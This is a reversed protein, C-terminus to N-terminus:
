FFFHYEDWDSYGLNGARERPTHTKERWRSNRSENEEVHTAKVRKAFERLDDLNTPTLIYFHVSNVIFQYTYQGEPESEDTVRKKAREKATKADCQPALATHIFFITSPGAGRLYSGMGLKKVDEPDTYLIKNFGTLATPIASTRWCFESTHRAPRSCHGCRERCRHQHM